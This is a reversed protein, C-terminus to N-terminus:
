EGFQHGTMVDEGRSFVRFELRLVDRRLAGVFVRFEQV